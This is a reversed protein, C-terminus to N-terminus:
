ARTFRLPHFWGFCQRIVAHFGSKWRGGGIERGDRKPIKRAFNGKPALGTSSRFPLDQEVSTALLTLVSTNYRILTPRLDASTVLLLFLPTTSAIRFFIQIKQNWLIKKSKSKKSLSINPIKEKRKKKRLLSHRRVSGHTAISSYEKYSKRKKKREKKEFFNRVTSKILTHLISSSKFLPKIGGAAVVVVKLLYFNSRITSVFKFSM